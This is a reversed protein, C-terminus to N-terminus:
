YNPLKKVYDIVQSVEDNSFRDNPYVTGQLWTLLDTKYNLSFVYTLYSVQSKTNLAKFAAFMQDFDDGFWGVSDYIQKALQDAYQRTILRGGKPITRFYNPNFGSNPNISEKEVNIDEASDKLGLGELLPKLFSNYGILLTIGGLILIQNDKIFKNASM